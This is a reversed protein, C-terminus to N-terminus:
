IYVMIQSKEVIKIELSLSSLICFVGYLFLPMQLQILM